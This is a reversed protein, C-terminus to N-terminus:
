VPAPPGAVASLVNNDSLAFGAENLIISTPDIVNEGSDPLISLINNVAELTATLVPLIRMWIAIKIEEFKQQMESQAQIFRALEGGSQQARQMNGIIGRIEAMAQAQAIEPSYEGYKDAMKNFNDMLGAAVNAAEGLLVLQTGVIPIKDGLNSMATGVGRIASSPSEDASSVASAASGIGQITSKIVSKIISDAIMAIAIPAAVSGIGAMLGGSSGGAASAGDGGAAAMKGNLGRVKATIDLATGAIRGFTGGIIGRMSEVADMFEDLKGKIEKPDPPKLKAYEEDVDKQFNERELRKSAADKAAQRPDILSEELAKAADKAAQGAASMGAILLDSARSVDSGLKAMMPDVYKLATAHDRAAKASENLGAVLRQNAMANEGLASMDMTGSSQKTSPKSAALSPVSPAHPLQVGGQSAAIVAAQQAGFTKVLNDYESKTLSASPAGGRAGGGSPQNALVIRIVAEEM